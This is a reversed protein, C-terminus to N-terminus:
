KAKPTPPRVKKPPLGMGEMCKLTIILLRKISNRDPAEGDFKFTKSCMKGVENTNPATYGEKEKGKLVSNAINNVETAFPSKAVKQGELKGDKHGRKYLKEGASGFGKIVEEPIEM